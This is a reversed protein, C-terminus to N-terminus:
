IGVSIGFVFYINQTYPNLILKGTIPFNLKPTLALKQTAAIGCSVVNASPAYYGEFPTFGTHFDFELKDNAKLHYAAEIYTSYYNKGNEPNKDDGYLLTSAMVSLPFKKTGNFSFTADLTHKTSSSSYDFVHNFRETEDPCFYDLFGVTFPGATYSFYLDLETYSNDVTYAGWAGILFNSKSLNMTPQISWASCTLSGRWIHRSRFDASLDFRLTDSPQHIKDTPEVLPSKVEGAQLCASIFLLSCAVVKKLQFPM